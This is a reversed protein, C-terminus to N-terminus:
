LSELCRLSIIHEYRFLALWGCMVEILSDKQLACRRFMCRCHGTSFISCGCVCVCMSTVSEDCVGNKYILNINVEYQTHLTKERLM